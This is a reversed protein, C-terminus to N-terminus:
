GPYHALVPRLRLLLAAQLIRYAAASDHLRATLWGLAAPMVRPLEEAACHTADKIVWATAQPHSSFVTTDSLPLFQDREGNV